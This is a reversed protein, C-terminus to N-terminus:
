QIWQSYKKITIIFNFWGQNLKFGDHPNNDWLWSNKRVEEIKKRIQDPISLNRDPDCEQNWWFESDPSLFRGGNSIVEEELIRLILEMLCCIFFNASLNFDYYNKNSWNHSLTLAVLMVRMGKQTLWFLSSLRNLAVKITNESPIFHVSPLPDEM